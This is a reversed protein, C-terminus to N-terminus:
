RVMETGALPREGVIKEPYGSIARSAQLGAVVAPEIAGVNLFRTDVWDGALVLNSYGSEGVKLRYQGTGSLSLVYRETPDINARWYQSNFRQAGTNGTSLDVLLDWNLGNPNEPTTADPWLPRTYRSLWNVALAKVRASQEEPFSVHSYPPIVPADQLLGCFYAVNKPQRAAPWRETPIVQSMDAWTNFPQQYADLIISGRTWGLGRLDETLWLQMALTQVTQVKNVMDQWKPSVAVIPACIDKLAGIAIGLVVADFDVGNKLTLGQQVSQWPTWYSELNIGQTRLEEGQEIQDYLPDAPWCPLGKVDILPNYSKVGPKLTVQRDYVIEEIRSNDASPVVSTIKTFFQFKVGRAKLVQYLPAFVVDGMGAQMKYMIAGRYAFVILLASHLAVGASMDGAISPTSRGTDGKPYAFAVDYLGRVPASYIAFDLGGHKKLWARYDIDDIVDFGHLLVGDVLMGIMNVIALDILILLRRIEPDVGPLLWDVIANFVRFFEKLLWELANHEAETHAKVDQPMRMVLAHLRSLLSGAGKLAGAELYAEVHSFVYSVFDPVELVEEAVDREFGYLRPTSMFKTHVWDMLKRFYEFPTLCRSEEGPVLNNTPFHFVWDSWEGDYFDEFGVLSHQKFAEDWTALPANVPRELEDYCTRIMRFANEYFGFWVHLGHEEIRDAQDQKRGSAGKGGLRWGLQYVTIDYHNQWGPRSTLGYVAALSGVGGGLVAIKKAKPRAVVVEEGAGVVFDIDVWFGIPLEVKGNQVQLGLERAIPFSPIDNLLLEYRNKLVWGGRFGTLRAPAEIVAQYCAKETDAVDPFQKLFVMPIDIKFHELLDYSVEEFAGVSVKALGSGGALLKLIEERADKPSNWRGDGAGSREGTKQVSLVWQPSGLTQATFQQFGLARVAFEPNKISQPAVIESMIKRFGYVERGTAVAYPNNVFLQPIFWVLRDPLYTAGHKKYRVTLIWFCVDTEKMTGINREAPALSYVTMNALVLLVYPLLPIYVYEGGAPGNLYKDCIDKLRAPDAKIPFAALAAEEQMYPGQFVPLGVGTGIYRPDNPDSM